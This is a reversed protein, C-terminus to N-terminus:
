EVSFSGSADNQQHLYMWWFPYTGSPDLTEARSLSQAARLQADAGVTDGRTVPELALEVKGEGEDAVGLM